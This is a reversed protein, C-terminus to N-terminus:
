HCHETRFHELKVTVIDPGEAEIRVPPNIERVAAESFMSKAVESKIRVKMMSCCLLSLNFVSMTVKAVRFEPHSLKARKNCYALRMVAHM